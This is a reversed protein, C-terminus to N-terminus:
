ASLFYKDRCIIFEVTSSDKLKPMVRWYKAAALNVQGVYAVPVIRSFLETQVVDAEASM